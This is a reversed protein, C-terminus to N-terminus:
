IDDLIDDDFDNKLIPAQDIRVYAIGNLVVAVVMWLVWAPFVENVSIHGPSQTMLLSWLMFAGGGLLLLTGTKPMRRRTQIGLLLTCGFFIASIAGYMFSPIRYGSEELGAFEIRAIAM